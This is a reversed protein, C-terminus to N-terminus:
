ESVTPDLADSKSYGGLVSPDGLPAVQGAASEAVGAVPAETPAITPDTVVNSIDTM